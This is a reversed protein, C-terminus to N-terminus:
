PYEYSDTTGFGILNMGDDNLYKPLIKIMSGKSKWLLQGVAARLVLVLTITGQCVEIKTSHSVVTCMM